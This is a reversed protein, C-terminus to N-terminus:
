NLHPFKWWKSSFCKHYAAMLAKSASLMFQTLRNIQCRVIKCHLRVDQSILSFSIFILSLTLFLSLSLSAASTSFKIEVYVHTAHMCSNHTYLFSIRTSILNFQVCIQIKVVCLFLILPFLCFLILFGVQRLLKFCAHLKKHASSMGQGAHYREM